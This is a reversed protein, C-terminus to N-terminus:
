GEAGGKAIVARSEAPEGVFVQDKFEGNLRDAIRQFADRLVADPRDLKYGITLQGGSTRYRLRATIFYPQEGVFPAIALKFENPVKFEGSEGATTNIEETYEFQTRGDTLRKGSKFKSNNTAHITQAIELLDAGDPETVEALGDEIHNAFREQDMLNGDQKIWHQWEPTPTLFLEARHDGWGPMDGAIHDNIVAVISGQTVPVWISLADSKHDSVYDIFADVTGPYYIGNTRKPSNEFDPMYPTPDIHVVESGEPVTVFQPADTDFIHPEAAERALHAIKSVSRAQDPSSQLTATLSKTEEKSVAM